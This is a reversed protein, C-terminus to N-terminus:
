KLAFSEVIQYFVPIYFDKIKNNMAINTVQRPLMYISIKQNPHFIDVLVMRIFGDATAHSVRYASFGNVLFKDLLVVNGAGNSLEGAVIDGIKTKDYNERLKDNEINSSFDIQIMINSTEVVEGDFLSIGEKNFLSTEKSEIRWSAPYQISYWDNEYTKWDVIDVLDASSSSETPLVLKKKEEDSLPQVFSKGDSTRCTGPYSATVPNGARACSAFDVVSKNFQDKSYNQYLYFGGGLLLALLLGGLLVIVAGFGKQM